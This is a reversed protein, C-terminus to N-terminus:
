LKIGLAGAFKVVAPWVARLDEAAQVELTINLPTSMSEGAATLATQMAGLLVAFAALVEPEMKIAAAQSHMLFKLMEAAAIEVGHEVDVLVSAM